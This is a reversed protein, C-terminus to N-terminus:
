PCTFSFRCSPPPLPSAKRTSVHGSDSELLVPPPPRPCPPGRGAQELPLEAVPSVELSLFSSLQGWIRLQFGDGVNERVTWEGEM